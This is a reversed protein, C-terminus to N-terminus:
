KKARQELYAYIAERQPGASKIAEVIEAHNFSPFQQHVYEVESSDNSDVQARDRGDQTTKNDSM